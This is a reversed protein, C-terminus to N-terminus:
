ALHTAQEIAAAVILLDDFPLVNGKATDIWQAQKKRDKV